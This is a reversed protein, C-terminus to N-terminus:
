SAVAVHVGRAILDALFEADDGVGDIFASKRRRQFPVGAVFLGPVPTVGRRQRIEGHVDLVPIRLWPYTRTFGTAWVVTEIGEARLDITTKGVGLASPWTPTFTERPGTAAAGGRSVFADI